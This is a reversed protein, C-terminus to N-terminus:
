VSALYTSTDFVHDVNCLHMVVAIFRSVHIIHRPMQKDITTHM